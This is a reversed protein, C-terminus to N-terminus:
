SSLMSLDAGSHFSENRFRPLFVNGERFIVHFRPRRLLEEGRNVTKKREVASGCVVIDHNRKQHLHVVTRELSHQLLHTGVIFQEVHGGSDGFQLFQIGVPSQRTRVALILTQSFLRPRLNMTRGVRLEQVHISDCLQLLLHFTKQPAEAM